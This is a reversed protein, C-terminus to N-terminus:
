DVSLAYINRNNRVLAVGKGIGVVLGSFGPHKGGGGVSTFRWLLSGSDAKYGDVSVVNSALVTEGSDSISTRPFNMSLISGTGNERSWKQIGTSVEVAYTCTFNDTAYVTDGHVVAPGFRGLESSVTWLASGDDIKVAVLRSEVSAVLLGGPAGVHTVKKGRVGELKRTWLEEGDRIGLATYSGDVGVVIVSEPLILPSASEAPAQRLPTSWLEARATTDYAVVAYSGDKDATQAVFFFTGKSLGITSIVEFQKSSGYQNESWEIRGTSSSVAKLSSDAFLVLGNSLAVPKGKLAPGGYRWERRGTILSVGDAGDNTPIIATEDVITPSEGPKKEQMRYQWLPEPAFGELVRPESPRARKESTFAGSAWAASGGLALGALGSVGSVILKRRGVSFETDPSPAGAGVTANASRFRGQADHVQAEQEDLEATVRSPLDWNAQTRALWVALEGATPRQVPAPVLCAAVVPRLTGPLDELPSTSHGTSAYTLLLGLAFIDDAVTPPTASVPQGGFLYENAISESPEHFRRLGFDVLRPTDRAVLVSYPSVGAHVLGNAHAAALTEALVRGLGLVVPEPLPGGAAAVVDPIPVVPRFESATWPQDGDVPGVAVTPLVGPGSLRRSKEAEACFRFRYATEHHSDVVPTTLLFPNPSGADGVHFGVYRRMAIHHREEGIAQVIRYPGIQRPTEM